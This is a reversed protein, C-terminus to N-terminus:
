TTSEGSSQPFRIADFWCRLTSAVGTTNLVPGPSAGASTNSLM